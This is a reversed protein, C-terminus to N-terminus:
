VHSQKQPRAAERRAANEEKILRLKDRKITDELLVKDFEKQCDKNTCMLQSHRLTVVGHANQIKETWTKSVKRKSNCRDCPVESSPIPNGIRPM